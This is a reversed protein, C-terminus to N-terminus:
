SKTSFFYINTSIILNFSAKHPLSFLHFASKKSRKPWFASKELLFLVFKPANKEFLDAILGLDSLASRSPLVPRLLLSPTLLPTVPSAQPPCSPGNLCFLPAISLGPVLLAKTHRSSLLPPTSSFSAQSAVKTCAHRRRQHGLRHLSYWRQSSVSLKM